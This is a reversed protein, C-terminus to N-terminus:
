QNKLLIELDLSSDLNKLYKNFKYLDEKPDKNETVKLKSYMDDVTM